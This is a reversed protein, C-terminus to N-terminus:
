RRHLRSTQAADPAALMAAGNATPNYDGDGQEDSGAASLWDRHNTAPLRISTGSVHPLCMAVRRSRRDKVRSLCALSLVCSSFIALKSSCTSDIAIAAMLGRSKDFSAQLM